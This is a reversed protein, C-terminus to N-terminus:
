RSLIASKNCTCLSMFLNMNFALSHYVNLFTPPVHGGGVTSGGM